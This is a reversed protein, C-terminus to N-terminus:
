CYYCCGNKTCLNCKADLIDYENLKNNLDHKSSFNFLRSGVSDLMKGSDLNILVIKCDKFNEIEAYSMLEYKVRQVNKFCEVNDVSVVESYGRDNVTLEEKNIESVIVWNMNNNKLLIKVWTGVKIEKMIDRGKAGNKPSQTIFVTYTV